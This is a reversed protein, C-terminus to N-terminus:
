ITILWSKNENKSIDSIQSLREDKQFLANQQAGWIGSSFRSTVCHQGAQPCSHVLGTPVLFGWSAGRQPVRVWSTRLWSSTSSPTGHSRSTELLPPCFPLPSLIANPLLACGPASSFWAPVLVHLRLHPSSPQLNFKNSTSHLQEQHVNSKNAEFLASHPPLTPFRRYRDILCPAARLCNLSFSLEHNMLATTLPRATLSNSEM